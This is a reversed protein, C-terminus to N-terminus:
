IHEASDNSLIPNDEPEELKFDILDDFAESHKRFHNPFPSLYPSPEDQSPLLSSFSFLESAAQNKKM